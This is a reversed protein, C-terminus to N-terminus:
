AYEIVFQVTEAEACDDVIRRILNIEQDLLVRSGSVMAIGIEARQWSDQYGVEAVSANVRAKIREMISKIVQRKGKLSGAAPMFFEVTCIVVHMANKEIAM